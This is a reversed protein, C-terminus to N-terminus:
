LELGVDRVDGRLDGFAVENLAADINIILEQFVDVMLDLICGLATKYRCVFEVGKRLDRASSYILRSM